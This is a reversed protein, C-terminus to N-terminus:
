VVHLSLILSIPKNAPCLLVSSDRTSVSQFDVQKQYALNVSPTLDATGILFNSVNEALSNCVIGASKRSATPKSPLQDKSPIFKTWDVPMKGQVRLRFEAALGPHQAEYDDITANWEAELKEGRHKVDEFFSYVDESIEFHKEPDLGFNKKIQAVDEVGFAAGHAKANNTASSGIGIITRINIFTPKQSIRATLLAQVIGTVNHDGDYVDIVNWGCAQMKSNIDETCAVDASGDCTINNNDYIIALNNLKWHGALSVAELGVGEQLCADGIMCWTMNDVVTHGPRNYTAGLHKTAMALGVANAVGQGLPGTTVEVGENEIEPHGPALSDTRDSHYSKLQEMTMSKFGVLHM